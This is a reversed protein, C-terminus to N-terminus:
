FVNNNADLYITWDSLGGEFIGDDWLGNGNWDLFKYGYISGTGRNGFDKDREHEGSSLSVEHYGDECGDWCGSPYTQEWGSPLVERVIYYGPEIDTFSYDGNEDTSVSPEAPEGSPDFEGNDNLDLYMAWGSLGQEDEDQEQDGDRDFWKKGSITGPTWNGFDRNLIVEGPEDLLVPHGWTGADLCEEDDGDYQNDPYSQTWGRKRIRRM